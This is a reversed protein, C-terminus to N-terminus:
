PQAGTTEALQRQEDIVAQNHTLGELVKYPWVIVSDGEALGALIVSHTADAPGVEVPAVRATDGQYRYVVPVVSRTLDLAGGAGRIEAPLDELKRGVVAQSPVRLVDEHLEVEIDVDATLGSLIRQEATDLLIEVRFCKNPETTAALAVSEVSGAFVREPYAQIRVQARQGAEVRGIDAEDVEAILLMQSLDAVELIVTGANNMTGTVTLEGVEANVRTVIGDLPSRILTYSLNDRARDIDAEAAELNHQLVELNKEAAALSFEAARLRAKQEDVRSEAEEVVSQSVQNSALQELQRTLDRESQRAQIRSAELDATQSAIRAREVEISVSQAKQRAETQALAAELETSDLRVLVSAMTDGPQGNGGRVQTGELAPLEAIRASVRASILVKKRPEIQGPASVTQSLNGREVLALRVPTPPENAAGAAWAGFGKSLGLLLGATVVATLLIVFFLKM